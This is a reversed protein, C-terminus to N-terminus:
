IVCLAGVCVSVSVSLIVWGFLAISGACNGQAAQWARATTNPASYLDVFILVERKRERERERRAVTGNSNDHPAHAQLGLSPAREEVHLRLWRAAAEADDHAQGGGGDGVWGAGGICDRYSSSPLVTDMEAPGSREKERVCMYVCVCICKCLRMRLYICMCECVCVCM